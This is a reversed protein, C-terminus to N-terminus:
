QPLSPNQQTLRLSKVYRASVGIAIKSTKNLATVKKFIDFSKFLTGNKPQANLKTPGAAVAPGATVTEQAATVTAGPQNSGSAGNNWDNGDTQSNSNNGNNWRWSDGRRWNSGSGGGRRWNNNGGRRWNGNGGRESGWADNPESKKCWMIKKNQVIPHQRGKKKCYRCPTDMGKPETAEDDPRSRKATDDKEPYRAVDWHPFFM